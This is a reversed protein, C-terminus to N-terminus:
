VLPYEGAADETHCDTETHRRDTENAGVGHVCGNKREDEMYANMM